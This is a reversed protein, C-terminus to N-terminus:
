AMWCADRAAAPLMSAPRTRPPSLMYATLRDSGRAATKRARRSLLEGPRRKDLYTPLRQAVANWLAEDRLGVAKSTKQELCSFPYTEFYRRMGPLAGSLRPQVGRGDPRRAQHRLPLCRRARGGAALVSGDLQQLTAQLVRLPV